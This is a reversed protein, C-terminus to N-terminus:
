TSERLLDSVLRSLREVEHLHTLAKSQVSRDQSLRRYESAHQEARQYLHILRRAQHVTM